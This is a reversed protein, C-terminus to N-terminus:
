KRLLHRKVWRNVEIRDKFDEINFDLRNADIEVVAPSMTRIKPLPSLKFSLQQQIM